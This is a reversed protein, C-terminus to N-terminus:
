PDKYTRIQNETPHADIELVEKSSKSYILVDDRLVISSVRGSAVPSIKFTAEGKNKDESVIEHRGRRKEIQERSAFKILSPGARQFPSGEYLEYAVKFDSPLCYLTYKWGQDKSGGILLSDNKDEAFDVYIVRVENTDIEVVAKVTVSRFRTRHEWAEIEKTSPLKTFELHLHNSINWGRGGKEGIFGSFIRMNMSDRVDPTLNEFRNDERNKWDIDIWSGNSAKKAVERIGETMWM